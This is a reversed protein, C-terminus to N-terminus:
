DFLFIAYGMQESKSMFSNDEVRLQTKEHIVLPSPSGHQKLSRQWSKFFSNLLLWIKGTQKNKNAM